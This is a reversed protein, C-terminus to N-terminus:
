ALKQLQMSWLEVKVPKEANKAPYNEVPEPTTLNVNVIEETNDGIEIAAQSGSEEGEGEAQQPWGGEQFPM